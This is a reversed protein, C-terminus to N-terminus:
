PENQSMSALSSESMIQAETSSSFVVCWYNAEDDGWAQLM